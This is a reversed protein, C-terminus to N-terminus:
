KCENHTLRHTHVTHTLFVVNPHIHQKEDQANTSQLLVMSLCLQPSYTRLELLAVPSPVSESDKGWM